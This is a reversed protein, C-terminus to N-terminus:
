HLSLLTQLHRRLHGRSVSLNEDTTPQASLLCAQFVRELLPNSTRLSKRLINILGEAEIATLTANEGKKALFDRLMGLTIENSPTNDVPDSKSADGSPPSDEPQEPSSEPEVHTTNHAIEAQERQMQPYTTDTNMLALSCPLIGLYSLVHQICSLNPCMSLTDLLTKGCQYSDSAIPSPPGRTSATLGQWLRVLALM